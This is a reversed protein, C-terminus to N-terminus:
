RKWPPQQGGRFTKRYGGAGHVTLTSGPPLIVPVLNECSYEGVCPVNNIVISASTIGERRMQMAAKQEVDATRQLRRNQPLDFEKRFLEDVAESDEDRGSTLPRVPGPQGEAVLRGHTKQGSGAVVTPPLEGRLADIRSASGPPSTASSPAAVPATSPLSSGIKHGDMYARILSAAHALRSVQGEPERIGDMVETFSGCAQEVDGDSTGAGAVALADRADEALDAAQHHAAISEDIKDLVRRLVGGVDGLSSM